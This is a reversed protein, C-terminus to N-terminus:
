DTVLVTVVHAALPSYLTESHVFADQGSGFSTNLLIDIGNEILKWCRSDEIQRVFRVCFLICKIHTAASTLKFASRRFTRGIRYRQLVNGFLCKEKCYFELGGGEGGTGRCSTM